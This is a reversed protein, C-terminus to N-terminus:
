QKNTVLCYVTKFKSDTYSKFELSVSGSGKHPCLYRESLLPNDAADPDFDDGGWAFPYMNDGYTCNLKVLDTRYGNRSYEYPFEITKSQGPSLVYNVTIEDICKGIYTASYWRGGLVYYGGSAEFTELSEITLKTDSKNVITILDVGTVIEPEPEPESETQCSIFVTFVIFSLLLFIKKM